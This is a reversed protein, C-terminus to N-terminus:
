TAHDTTTAVLLRVRESPELGLETDLLVRYSDQQRAAESINGEALYAEILAVQASERLPEAAVASLATDIAEGFRGEDRLRM